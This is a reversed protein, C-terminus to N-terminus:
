VHSMVGVLDIPGDAAKVTTKGARIAPPPRGVVSPWSRWQAGVDGVRVLITLEQEYRLGHPRVDGPFMRAAVHIAHWLTSRCQGRFAGSRTDQQLRYKRM